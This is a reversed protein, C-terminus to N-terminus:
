PADSRLGAQGIGDRGSLAAVIPLALGLAFPRPRGLRQRRLVHLQHGLALNELELFTRSRFRGPLFRSSQVCSCLHASSVVATWRLVRSKESRKFNNRLWLHSSELPFGVTKPFASTIAEPFGKLGDVVATLM